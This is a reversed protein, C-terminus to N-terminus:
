ELMQSYGSPANGFPDSNTLYALKIAARQIDTLIAWHEMEVEILGRRADWVESLNQKGAQYGAQALGLLAKATPILRQQHEDERAKAAEQDAMVGALEASLELRRDETLKRAKEVQLMKEATRKDQRNPRDWPLDIAVQLTLMDSLDSRRKGYMVEWSWNLERDAKARDTESIAVQEIQKANLVLPHKDIQENLVDRNVSLSYMPLESSIPQNAASGIWRSLLARAKREDRQATIFLHHTNSLQTDLKFVEALQAGGSAIRAKIVNREATMENMIRQYLEVKRQAEYVDLWALGADRQISKSTAIKETQYQTATAQMARAGAERKATPVMEQMVGITSMTMDDRNFRFADNSTVPLNVVGLKLRPDPLQSSAVAAAMSSSAADDLSELLPQHQTSLRMAEALSLGPEAYVHLSALFWFCAHFFLKWQQTFM